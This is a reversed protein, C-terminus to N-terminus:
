KAAQIDKSDVLTCALLVTAKLYCENLAERVDPAVGPVDRLEYLRDRLKCAYLARELDKALTSKDKM